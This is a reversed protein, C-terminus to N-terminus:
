HGARYLGSKYQPSCQAIARLRCACAGTSRPIDGRKGSFNYAKM